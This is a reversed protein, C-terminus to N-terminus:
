PVFSDSGSGIEAKRARKARETLRPVVLIGIFNLLIGNSGFLRRVV